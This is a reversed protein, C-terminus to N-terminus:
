AAAQTTGRLTELCARGAALKEAAPAILIAVDESTLIQPGRAGSCLAALSGLYRYADELVDVCNILETALDKSVSVQEAPSCACTATTPRKRSM